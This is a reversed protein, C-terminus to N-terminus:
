CINNKAILNTQMQAWPRLYLNPETLGEGAASMRAANLQELRKELWFLIPPMKHGGM